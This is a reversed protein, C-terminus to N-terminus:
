KYYSQYETPSKGYYKKFVRNFYSRNEFGCQFYIDKVKNNPNKLLSLALKLREKM